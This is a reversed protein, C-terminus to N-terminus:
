LNQLQELLRLQNRARILNQKPYTTHYYVDGKLFDTLMRLAMIYTMMQGAFPIAMREGTSLYEGM